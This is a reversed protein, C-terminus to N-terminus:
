QAKFSTQFSATHYGDEYVAIEVWYEGLPAKRKLKFNFAGEYVNDQEESLKLKGKPNTIKCVIKDAQLIEVLDGDSTGAQIIVRVWNGRSVSVEEGGTVSVDNITVFLTMEKRFFEVTLRKEEKLEQNESDVVSFILNYFGDAQM